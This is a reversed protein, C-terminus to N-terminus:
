KQSEYKEKYRLYLDKQYSNLSIDRGQIFAHSIKNTRMDLADGDSVFLTADKGVELTGLSQDIGLIKAANLTILKVAEEKELGFAAFTGAYFPLNRTQMREMQGSNEIGTLVGEHVLLGALKYPMYVDEEKSSPLSHPRSVLVAVNNEKLFGAIKYSERGGIVVVKAIGLEKALLIADIIQKEYNANVFFSQSGDFLGKTAKLILNEVEQKGANYAKAQTLFDKLKAVENDYEKNPESGGGGGFGFRTRRFLAPWNAHVGDDIKYAADEWNWADLQMISSTGTILGGRPAVQAILLGNPRMSEVVRSEANYAILSRVNPTILGIEDEDDTARVADIEVLGLTSNASIFGPYVHKGKADIVRGTPSVNTGIQTIKGKEFVLTANPIVTGNGIHATIGTISITEAQAKAPPDSPQAEAQFAFMAFAFLSIYFIKKM